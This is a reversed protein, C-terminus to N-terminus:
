IQILFDSRRNQVDVVMQYPTTRHDHPIKGTSPVTTRGLIQPVKTRLTDATNTM